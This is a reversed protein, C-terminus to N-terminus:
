AAAQEKRAKLWGDVDAEDYGRARDSLKVAPVFKGANILRYLATKSLGTKEIVAPLRLIKM